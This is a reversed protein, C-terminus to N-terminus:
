ILLLSSPFNFTQKQFSSLSCPLFTQTSFFLPFSFSFMKHRSCSDFVRAWSILILVQKTQKATSIITFITYINNKYQPPAHACCLCEAVFTFGSGYGVYNLVVEDYGPFQFSWWAERKDGSLFNDEGGYSLVEGKERLRVPIPPSKFVVFLINSSAFLLRDFLM